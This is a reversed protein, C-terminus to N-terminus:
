KIGLFNSVRYDFHRFLGISDSEQEKLKEGKVRKLLQLQKESEDKPPCAKEITQQYDTPVLYNHSTSVSTVAVQTSTTSPGPTNEHEDM